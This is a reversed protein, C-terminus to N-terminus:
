RPIQSDQEQKFEFSASQEQRFQLTAQAAVPLEQGNKDTYFANVTIRYEGPPLVEILEMQDDTNTEVAGPHSLTWTVDRLKARMKPDLYFRMRQLNEGPQKDPIAEWQIELKVVQSIPPISGPAVDPDVPLTDVRQGILPAGSTQYPKKEGFPNPSGPVQDPKIIRGEPFVVKALFSDVNEPPLEDVWTRIKDLPVGDMQERTVHLAIAKLENPMLQNVLEPFNEAPVARVIEPLAEPPAGRFIEVTKQNSLSPVVERVKEPHKSFIEVIEDAPRSAIQETTQSAIAASTRKANGRQWLSYGGWAVLLIVGLLLIAAAARELQTRWNPKIYLRLKKLAQLPPLSTGAIQECGWLVLLQRNWFPGATRYFERQCEPDPLKFEQIIQRSRTPLQPNKAVEFLERFGDELQKIAAEPVSQSGITKSVSALEKGGPTNSLEFLVSDNEHTAHTLYTALKGQRFVAQDMRLFHESGDGYRLPPYETLDVRMGRGRIKTFPISAM